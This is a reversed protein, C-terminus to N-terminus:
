AFGGNVAGLGFGVDEGLALDQLVGAEVGRGEEDAELVGELGVRVEVKDHIVLGAALEELVHLLFAALELLPAGAEVNGLDKQGEGRQVVVVDDVPIQLRFVDQEILLPV